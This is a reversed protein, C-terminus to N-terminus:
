ARFEEARRRGSFWGLRRRRAGAEYFEHGGRELSVGIGHDAPKQNDDQFDGDQDHTARSPITLGFFRSDDISRSNLIASWATGSARCPPERTKSGLFPTSTSPSPSNSSTARKPM